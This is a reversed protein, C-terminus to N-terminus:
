ALDPGIAARLTVLARRTTSKVTGVPMRIHNAIEQHTMGKYFALSIVQRQAASLRGVAHAIRSSADLAHVLDFPDQEEACALLTEVDERVEEMKRRRLHDLARSRCITMLWALANGRAPDFRGADRWVQMYCDECIDEAAHPDRIIRLALGYCRGLTTDYLLGLSESDGSAIAAIWQAMQMTAADLSCPDARVEAAEEEQVTHELAQPALPLNAEFDTVPREAPNM